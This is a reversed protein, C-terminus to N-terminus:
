NNNRKIRKIKPGKKRKVLRVILYVIGGIFSFFIITSLIGGGGEGGQPSMLFIVFTCLCM